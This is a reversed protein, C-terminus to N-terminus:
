FHYDIFGGLFVYDSAKVIPSDEADGLLRSYGALGHVIWSKSVPYLVGLELNVSEFGAAATHLPLGSRASQETNVGFFVSTYDYDAWNASLGATVLPGILALDETDDILEAKAMDFDGTLMRLPLATELGVIAQTGGTGGIHRTLNVNSIFPGIEIEALLTVTTSTDINGLGNLNADLSEKREDGQSVITSLLISDNRFYNIGISDLNFFISDNWVVEINPAVITEATDSGQYEPGYFVGLGLAITWDDRSREDASSDSVILYATTLSLIPILFTKLTVCKM